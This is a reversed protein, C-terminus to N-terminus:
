RLTPLRSLFFSEWVWTGVEQLEESTHNGTTEKICQGIEMQEKDKLFESSIRVHQHAAWWWSSEGKHTKSLSTHKRIKANRVSQLTSHLFGISLNANEHAVKSIPFKIITINTLISYYWYCSRIINEIVNSVNLLM